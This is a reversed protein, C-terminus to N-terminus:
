GPEPEPEPEPAPAPGPWICASKTIKGNALSRLADQEADAQRPGRGGAWQSGNVAIAGCDGFSVVVICRRASQPPNNCTQLAVREATAQDFEGYGGLCIANETLTTNAPAACAGWKNDAHAIPSLAVIAAGAAAIGAASIAIPARFGIIPM